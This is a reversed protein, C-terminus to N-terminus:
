YPAAREIYPIFGPEVSTDKLYQEFWVHKSLAAENRFITAKDRAYAKAASCYAASWSSEDLVSLFYCGNQCLILGKGKLVVGSTGSEHMQVINEDIVIRPYIAVSSELEYARAVAHSYTMRNNQFHRSYAIAGRIFLGRDLFRLFVKRVVDLFELFNTHAPCTMVITDSIAQVSFVASNVEDFARLAQELDDRFLFEGSDKDEALRNKYGLVDILACYTYAPTV